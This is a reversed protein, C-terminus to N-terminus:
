CHTASSLSRSLTGQRYDLWLLAPTHLELLLCPIDKKLLINFYNGESLPASLKHEGSVLVSM